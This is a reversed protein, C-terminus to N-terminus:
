NAAVLHQLNRRQAALLREVTAPDQYPAFLNLSIPHGRLLTVGTIAAVRLHRGDELTVNQVVGTYVAADDESVLGLGAMDEVELSLNAQEVRQRMEGEVEAFPDQERFVNAIADLFDARPMDLRGSGAAVPALFGGYNALPRGETRLAALEGCNAFMGLVENRGRNIEETLAIIERDAPKAADLPCHGAPIPLEIGPGPQAAATQAAAPAAGALLGALVTVLLLRSTRM